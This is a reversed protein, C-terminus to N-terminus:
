EPPSGALWRALEQELDAYPRYGVTLADLRNGTQLVVTPFGGIGLGQVLAFDARTAERVEEAAFLLGFGAADIGFPAAIEALVAECTVDRNGEYFARQVAAFYDLAADPAFNRMVVAARCAPETDYVFDDREFFAFDFPQGTTAHVEEWHHRIYAKSREGLAVTEGARLGGVCLRIPVGEGCVQRIRAIM